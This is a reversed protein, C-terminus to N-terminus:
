APSGEAAHEAPAGRLVWVLFRLALWWLGLPVVLGLPKVLLGRSPVGPLAVLPVHSVGGERLAAVVDPPAVGVWDGADLWTNWEDGRLATDWRAGSLVRPALRLDLALQRRLLFADRGLTPGPAGELGEVRLFDYFGLGSAVCVGAAVLGAARRLAPAWAPGLARAALDVAVHRGTATALAAGVMVLALTLRTAVGRVGGLLTLASGDQLWGVANEAWGAGVDRLAAGVGAGLVAALWRRSPTPSWRAAVLAGLAAGLGARLTLGAHFGAADRAALGKLVVWGCLVVLLAGGLALALGVEARRLAADLRDARSM